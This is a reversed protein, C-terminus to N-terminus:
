LYARLVANVTHGLSSKVSARLPCEVAYLSLTDAQRGALYLATMLHARLREDYRHVAVLAELEPILEAGGGLAIDAAIRDAVVSMRLRDIRTAADALPGAASTDAFSAPGWQDLLEALAHRRHTPDAVESRIRAWAAEVRVADVAGPDVALVYGADRRLLM